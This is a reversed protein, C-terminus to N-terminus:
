KEYISVVGRACTNPDIRFLKDYQLLKLKLAPWLLPDTVSAEDIFHTLRQIAIVTEINIDGALYFEVIRPYNNGKQVLWNFDPNMDHMTRLDQNYLYWFSEKRRLFESWVSPDEFMKGVWDIDCLLHATVFDKWEDESFKKAAKDFFYKDRRKWFAAKSIRTKFNYKVADYKGEFHLKLAMYIQCADLPTMLRM